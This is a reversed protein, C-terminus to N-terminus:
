DALRHGLHLLLKRRAELVRREEIGRREDAVRDVGDVLREDLRSDEDQDDDHQEQLVRPRHQYRRRGHRHRDDPREGCHRGEAERDIQHRQERQDEGDADDDVVGDDDDLVGRAVDLL